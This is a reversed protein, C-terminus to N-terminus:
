WYFKIVSKKSGEAAEATTDQVPNVRFFMKKGKKSKGRRSEEQRRRGEGVDEDKRTRKEDAAQKSAIEVNSDGPLAM